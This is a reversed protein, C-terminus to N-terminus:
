RVNLIASLEFVGDKYEAKVTGAYNEVSSRISKMGIGHRDKREKTTSFSDGKKKREPSSNVIKIYLIGERQVARTTIFRKGEEVEQCAEIANDLANSFISCLDVPNISINKDMDLSTTMEIGSEKAKITKSYIVTDLISNGFVISTSYEDLKDELEGMYKVADENGEGILGKVVAIHNNIDHWMNRMQNKMSVMEDYKNRSYEMNQMILSQEMDIRAYKTSKLFLSYIVINTILLGISIVFNSIAIQGGDFRDRMILSIMTFLSILSILILALFDKTLLRNQSRRQTQQIGKFVAFQVVKAYILFPINYAATENLEQFTVDTFLNLSCFVIVECAIVFLIYILASVIIARRGGQYIVQSLTIILFAAVIFNINYEPLYSSALMLAMYAIAGITSRIFGAKRRYFADFYDFLIYVDVAVTLVKTIDVIFEQNIANVGIRFINECFVCFVIHGVFSQCISRGILRRFM